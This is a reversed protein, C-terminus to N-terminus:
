AGVGITVRADLGAVLPEEPTTVTGKGLLEVLRAGLVADDTEITTLRESAERVDDIRMGDGVLLLIAEVIGKGRLEIRPRERPDVGNLWAGEWGQTLTGYGVEDLVPGRDTSAVPVSQFVGAAAVDALAEGAGTPLTSSSARPALGPLAGIGRWAAAIMANRAADDISPDDFPFALFTVIETADMAHEGAGYVVDGDEEIPRDLTVAVAGFDELFSVLDSETMTAVEDIRLGLENRMGGALGEPGFSAAHVRLPADGGPGVVRMTPDALLVRISGSGAVPTSVLLPATSLVPQGDFTSFIALMRVSQPVVVDTGTPSPSPELTPRDARDFWLGAALGGGLALVAFFLGLLGRRFRTRRRHGVRSGDTM